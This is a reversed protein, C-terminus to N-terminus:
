KILINVSKLNTKHRVMRIAFIVPSQNNSFELLAAISPDRLHQLEPPIPSYGGILAYVIGFTCLAPVVLLL